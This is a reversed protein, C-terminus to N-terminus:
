LTLEWITKIDKPFSLEVNYKKSENISLIEEKFPYNFYITTKRDNISNERIIRSITEKSPFNYRNHEKCSILFNESQIYKIIDSNLNRRSGHHPVKILDVKVPELYVKKLNELVISPHADALMCVKKQNYELIFAISTKNPLTTDEEFPYAVLEEVSKKEVEETTSIKEGNYRRKEQKKQYLDWKSALEELDSFNPSLITLIADNLKLKNNKEDFFLVENKISKSRLLAYLDNGDRYSIKSNREDRYFTQTCEVGKKEFIKEKSNFYVCEISDDLMGSSIIRRIGDIHDADTHTVILFNIKQKKKELSRIENKLEALVIRGMGGDILINTIKKEGYSILFSDGVDAHFAKIKFM